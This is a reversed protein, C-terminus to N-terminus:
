NYFKYEFVPDTKFFLKNIPNFNCDILNISMNIQNSIISVRKYFDFTLSKELSISYNNIEINKDLEQYDKLISFLTEFLKIYQNNISIEKRDNNNVILVNKQNYFITFLNKNNYQYRLNDENILFFGSQFQGNKYVEEFSCNVELAILLKPIILLAILYQKIKM